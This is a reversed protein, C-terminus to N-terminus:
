CIWDLDRSFDNEHSKGCVGTWAVCNLASVVLLPDGVDEEINDLDPDVDNM